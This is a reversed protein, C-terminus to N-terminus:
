IFMVKPFVRIFQIFQSHYHSLTGKLRLYIEYGALAMLLNILILDRLTNKLSAHEQLHSNNMKIFMFHLLPEDLNYVFAFM